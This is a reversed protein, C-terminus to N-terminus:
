SPDPQASDEVPGIIVDDSSLVEQTPLLSINSASWESSLRRLSIASHQSHLSEFIPAVGREAADLPAHTLNRMQPDSAAHQSIGLSVEAPLINITPIEGTTATHEIRPNLDELFAYCAAAQAYWAFMSNISESLEASSTKDICRMDVWAWKLGQSRAIRCCEVIKRHGPSDRNQGAQFQQLTVESEAPGWCHSLIAYPPIYTGFFDKLVMREPNANILRM